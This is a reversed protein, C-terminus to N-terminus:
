RLDIMKMVDPEKKEGTESTKGWIGLVIWRHGQLRFM